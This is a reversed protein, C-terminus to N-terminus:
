HFSFCVVFLLLCTEGMLTPMIMMMIIIMVIIGLGPYNADSNYTM